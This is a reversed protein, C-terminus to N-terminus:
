TLQKHLNIEILEKHVTGDYAEIYEEQVCLASGTLEKIHYTTVDDEGTYKLVLNGKTVTYTFTDADAEGDYTIGQGDNKFELYAGPLTFMDARFVEVENEYDIETANVVFWKGVVGNGM